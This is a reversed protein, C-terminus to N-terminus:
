LGVRVRCSGPGQVDLGARMITCGGFPPWRPHQRDNLTLTVADNGTLTHMIHIAGGAARVEIRDLDFPDFVLEVYEAQV